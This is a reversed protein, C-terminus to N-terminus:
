FMEYWRRARTSIAKQVEPVQGALAASRDEPIGLATLQAQVDTRLTEVQRDSLETAGVVTWSTHALQQASQETLKTGAGAVADGIQLGFRTVTKEAEPNRAFVRLDDAFDQTAQTEGRAVAMLDRTLDVLRGPVEGQPTPLEGDAQRCGSISVALALLLVRLVVSNM